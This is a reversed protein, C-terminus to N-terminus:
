PLSANLDISLVVEETGKKLVVIPFRKGKIESYGIQLQNFAFKGITIRVRRSHKERRIPVGLASFTEEPQVQIVKRDPDIWLLAHTATEPIVVSASKSFQARFKADFRVYLPHKSILQLAM